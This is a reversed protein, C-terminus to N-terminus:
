SMFKYITTSDYPEGANKLPSVFNPENVANPFFQTELCFADRDCHTIGGKGHEGQLFNGTYLQIGICDTWVQMQIGSQDGGAVAALEVGDKKKDIAFNHDYGNVYRLQDCDADIDRGITKAERFDFPTKDVEAIEGTPIAHSDRVPTYHSALIQLQHNLATGSRSGNLNFYAHNTLNFVTKRDASAHYRICLENEDTVEYTVSMVANGPFGQQLHADEIEFVIKNETVESVKWFRWTTGNSGSHLNNENDNAQLPYKTGDITVEASSIRNCHRGVVAGFCSVEKQYVSVDDHGLIVDTDQGDRDKVVLSVLAAGFDTLQVRMGTKNYITYLFAETGDATKGFSVKEM